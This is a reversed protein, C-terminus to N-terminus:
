GEGETGKAGHGEGEVARLKREEAERQAQRIARIQSVSGRLPGTAVGAAASGGTNTAAPTATTTTTTNPVTNAADSPTTHSERTDVDTQLDLVKMQGDGALDNVDPDMDHLTNTDHEASKQRELEELERRRRMIQSVSLRLPATTTTRASSEPTTTAVATTTSRPTTNPTNPSTHTDVDTELDLVKMHGSLDNVDPDHITNINSEASKQREYEEIQRRRERRAEAASRMPKRHEGEVGHEQHTEMDRSSVTLQAKNRTQAQEALSLAVVQFWYVSFKYRPFRAEPCDGGRPDWSREVCSGPIGQYFLFEDKM